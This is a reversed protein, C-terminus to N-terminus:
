QFFNWVLGFRVMFDRYPYNPASYFDNGTFSSNFHEAKLFIRAQRIRANIFFDIMPFDGIKKDNQVFSEALLPNYDNTYHKTFYNFTIGTQIFLAKKFLKDTYYLSNRTVFQPLNLIDNEQTVNQYLFTNDLAWKRFKIEKSVKIAVYSIAKDYQKPSVLQTVGTTDDNSFFLHDNLTTFQASATAWQTNAEVKITNIKENKFDNKWNYNVYSSQHFVYNINPLKSINQYQFKFDNKDNLKYRLTADVNSFTQKTIAKTYLFTGKWNNKQYDYQGGVSNIRESILNPVIQTDLILVKEYRYTYNFDEIFFQFQGLTKNEYTAGVRNFMRKHKTIDIINSTVYSTGFRQFPANDGITTTLTVQNFDYLKTEYNFQHNIYLNNEADKSNIRFHHDIFYRKGKFLSKADNFYVQLRARNRFASEEGEFDEITTIGGNEGNLFDQGTYHLNILYRKNKTFYSTTFRFNGTSSLQNIYKGLSRLGKYGISFNFQESTNVTVFADVSQGQEMVTKFYLETLPTAVSYYNIDNTDLYNFHKGKFGFEPYPNFQNLGFNLTTYTQGENAFPLLGFIDKRLYNYKYDSKITLSTDVYTTDRQLTYIKYSTYPAIKAKEKAIEEDTKLLSKRTNEKSKEQSFLLLPLVLLFCLIVNIKM